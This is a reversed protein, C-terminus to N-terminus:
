LQTGFWVRIEDENKSRLTSETEVRRELNQIIQRMMENSQELKEIFRQDKQQQSGSSDKLFIM